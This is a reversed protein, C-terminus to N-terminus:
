PQSNIAEFLDRTWQTLIAAPTTRPKKKVASNTALARRIEVIRSRTDKILIDKKFHEAEPRGKNLARVFAEYAALAGPNNTFDGDNFRAREYYNQFEPPCEKKALLVDREKVDILGDRTVKKRDEEWWPDTREFIEILLKTTDTVIGLENDPVCLAEQILKATATPFDKENYNKFMAKVDPNPGGLGGRDPRGGAAEGSRAPAAGITSTSVLPRGEGGTQQFVTVSANINASITMPMCITLYSRLTHVVMPKNDIVLKLVDERFNQRNIFVVSQVTTHDVQLLLSNINSLTSTALGFAAAVAALTKPGVSSILGPNVLADVAVRIAAIETLVAANERKRRDLWALYADCRQDIDNMGAQVILPWTRSSIKDACIPVNPGVYPLAQRCLFDLYANQLETTTAIDSSALETGIGDRFWSTELSNCGAQLLAFGMCAFLASGRAWVVGRWRM